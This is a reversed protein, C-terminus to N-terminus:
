KPAQSLWPVKNSSNHYEWKKPTNLHLFAPVKGQRWWSLVRNCTIGLAPKQQVPLLSTSFCLVENRQNRRATCHGLGGQQTVWHPDQSGFTKQTLLLHEKTRKNTELTEVEIHIRPQWLLLETSWALRLSLFIWKGRDGLAPILAMYWWQWRMEEKTVERSGM